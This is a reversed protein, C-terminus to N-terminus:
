VLVDVVVVAFAWVSCEFQAGRVGRWLYDREARWGGARYASAVSEAAEDVFVCACYSGSVSYTFGVPEVLWMM